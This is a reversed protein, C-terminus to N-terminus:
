GTSSYKLYKNCEVKGSIGKEDIMWGFTRWPRFVRVRQISYNQHEYEMYVTLPNDDIVCGHSFNAVSVREVNNNVFQVANYVTNDDNSIFVNLLLTIFWM